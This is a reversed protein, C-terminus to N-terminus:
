LLRDHLNEDSTAEKQITKACEKCLGDKNLVDWYGCAKCTPPTEVAHPIDSKIKEQDALSLWYDRDEHLLEARVNIWEGGAVQEIWSVEKWAIKRAEQVNHAFVLCAGGEPDGGHVIYPKLM